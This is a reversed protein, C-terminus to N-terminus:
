APQVAVHRYLFGFAAFGHAHDYGDILVSVAPEGHRKADWPMDIRETRIITVGTGKRFPLRQGKPRVDCALVGRRGVLAALDADSIDRAIRVPRATKTTANRTTM